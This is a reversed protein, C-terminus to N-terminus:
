GDTRRFSFRVWRLDREIICCHSRPAYPRGGRAAPGGSGCGLQSYLDLLILNVMHMWIPGMYSKATIIRAMSLPFVLAPGPLVVAADGARPRTVGRGDLLKEVGVPM